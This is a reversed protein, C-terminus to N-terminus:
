LLILQSKDSRFGMMGRPFDNEHWRFINSLDTQGFIRSDERMSDTLQPQLNPRNARRTKELNEHWSFSNELGKPIFVIAPGIFKATYDVKADLIEGLAKPIRFWYRRYRYKKKNM